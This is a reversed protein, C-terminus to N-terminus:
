THPVSLYDLLTQGRNAGVDILTERRLTLLQSILQTKWDPRWDSAGRAVSIEPLLEDEASDLVVHKAGIANM